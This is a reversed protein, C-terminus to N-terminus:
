DLTANETGTLSQQLTPSLTVTDFPVQPILNENDGDMLSNWQDFNKHLGLYKQLFALSAKNILDMAVKSDVDGKLSLMHGIIKGTAFTFDVFNYHVSGRIAIMKREKHPQFFKKLKVIDGASQFRESNIFFLPQPIKSYVEEGVPFMWPDLAIGCRFRQDESLVQIATSGGFSHGIIAIKNRALSGKLQQLDIQLDLVNKVPKGEDIDLLLSLAQSCEKGRHRVQEKRLTESEAKASRFYLWSKNSSEAASQDQFYYTASASEDRHEVAAVIFGNSALDMGIASYITRFAGLGHSFIILPYKEGTRLPSNWKAPVTKSGYLLNFVKGVFSPSGLVRSLGEFYEKNPIWFTDPGDKDQSPYYLRLFISQNTYGSMLDTCGVSYPGSGKPIKMHGFSATSLLWQITQIWASPQIYTLPEIDHWNFPHVLALCGCLCFLMHLKPPVM